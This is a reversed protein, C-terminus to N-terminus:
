LLPKKRIMCIVEHPQFAMDQHIGAEGFYINILISYQEIRHLHDTFCVMGMNSPNEFILMMM